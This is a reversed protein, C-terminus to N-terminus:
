LLQLRTKAVYRRRTQVSEFAGVKSIGTRGSCTGVSADKPGMTEPGDIPDDPNECRQDTLREQTKKGHEREEAAGKM